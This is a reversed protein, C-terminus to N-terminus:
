ESWEVLPQNLVGTLFPISDNNCDCEDLKSDLCERQETLIGLVSAKDVQKRNKQSLRGGLDGLRKFEIKNTLLSNKFYLYEKYLCILDENPGVKVLKKQSM